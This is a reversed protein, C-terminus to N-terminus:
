GGIQKRVHTKDIAQAMQQQKRIKQIDDITMEREEEDYKVPNVPYISNARIFAGMFTEQEKKWARRYVDFMVLIEIHQAKTVSFGMQDKMSKSAWMPAKADGIVTYACQALLRKEMKSKYRIWVESKKESDDIDDITLGHKELARDLMAKANKAEGGKGGKALALLKLLRDKTGQDIM